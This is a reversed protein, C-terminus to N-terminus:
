DLEATSETNAKGRFAEFSGAKAFDIAFSGDDLKTVVVSDIGIELLKDYTLLEGERLQLVGRLLWNAIADNPNTMLAKGGEQCIKAQLVEGTPLRLSFYVDRSPFFNPYDRHIFAPIPIYVEGYTRARGGANWQNLGSREPVWPVEGRTSYLPLVVSSEVVELRTATDNAGIVPVWPFLQELFLFPDEMIAVDYSILPRSVNFKKFLTSKSLNFSYENYKDKFAISAESVKTISITDMDVNHMEEETIAIQGPLRTVCHYYLSDLGYARKSFDIRENRLESIKRVIEEPTKLATYLTRAKNFEAVKESEVGSVGRLFTKLGLGIRGRSADIAVDSRSHDTAAFSKCFLKEAVRYHIFPEKADSSLRSLMGINRLMKIYYEKQQENQTTFFM